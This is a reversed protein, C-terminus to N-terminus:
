WRRLGPRSGSAARRRHDGRGAGGRGPHAPTAGLPAPPRPHERARRRHRRGPARRGLRLFPTLAAVRAAGEYAPRELAELLRLWHMAAPTDFVNGAGALVVPVGLRELERYVQQANDTKRCLVAVDGPRLPRREGDDEIEAGSALLASLDRACDEAVADRASDSRCSTPKKTRVINPAYRDLVRFRLAAPDPAGHLRRAVHHAHVTRYVIREHGLQAGSFLADYADILAKDSRWNVDLTHLAGARDAAKLYADVDAGRFAYIAQKPDGILVLRRGTGAFARELM